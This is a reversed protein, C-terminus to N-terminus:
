PTDGKQAACATMRNKLEDLFADLTAAPIRDRPLILARDKGIFVYVRGGDEAIETLSTYPFISQGRISQNFVADDRLEIIETKGYLDGQLERLSKCLQKRLRKLTVSPSYLKWFLAVVIGWPVFAVISAASWLANRHSYCHLACLFFTLALCIYQNKRIIDRISKLRFNAFCTFALYDDETLTTELRYNTM